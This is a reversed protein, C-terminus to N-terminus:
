EMRVSSRVVSVGGAACVAELRELREAPIRTSAVVVETIRHKALLEGVADLNGLVPM